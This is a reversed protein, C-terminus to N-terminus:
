KRNVQAVDINVIRPGEDLRLHSALNTQGITTAVFKASPLVKITLM